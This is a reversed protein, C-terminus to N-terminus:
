KINFPLQLGFFFYGDSRHINYGYGTQLIDKFFSVVLGLGIEPSDDKNFDLASVNLGVGPDLVRNFFVSKRSGPKFLYSFSPAAQFSSRKKNGRGTHAFILGVAMESHPLTKYVDIRREEIKQLKATKTDTGVPHAAAIRIIVSDGVDRVGTQKLHLTTTDPVSELDLRLVEQGFELVATNVERGSIFQSVVARLHDVASTGLTELETLCSKIATGLNTFATKFDNDASANALEGLEQQKARVTNLLELSGQRLHLLDDNTRILLDAPALQLASGGTSYATKLQQVSQLYSDVATEVGGIIEKVKTNDAGGLMKLKNFEDVVTQTCPAAQGLLAVLSGPVQSKFQELLGQVGTENFQAAATSLSTLRKKQEESLTFVWREVVFTDGVPYSDFGELHIPREASKTVIWAGLSIQTGSQSALEQARMRLSAAEAAAARFTAAYREVLPRGRVEDLAANLRARFGPDALADNLIESRLRTNERLSRILEDLAAQDHTSARYAEFAALDKALGKLGAEAASELKSARDILTTISPNGAGPSRKRLEDKNIRIELDSNIDSIRSPGVERTHGDDDRETITLVDLQGPSPPEAHATGVAGLMLVSGVAFTLFRTIM